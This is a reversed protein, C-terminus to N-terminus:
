INDYHLAQGVEKAVPAFNNRVLYFTAYAIFAAEFIRWRYVPYLRAVEAPPLRPAPPAPRFWQILTGPM